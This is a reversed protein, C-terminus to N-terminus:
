ESDGWLQSTPRPLRCAAGGGRGWGARGAVRDVARDM